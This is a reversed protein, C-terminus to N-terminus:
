VATTTLGRGRRRAHAACAACIADGTAFFKPDMVHALELWSLQTPPVEAHAGCLVRIFPVLRLTFGPSEHDRIHIYRHENGM